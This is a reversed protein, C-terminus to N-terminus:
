RPSDLINFVRGHDVLYHGHYRLELVEMAQRVMLLHRHAHSRPLTTHLPRNEATLVGEARFTLAEKAIERPFVTLRNRSGEFLTHYRIIRKHGNLYVVVFHCRDEWTLTSALWGALDEDELKLNRNMVKEAALRTAILPQAHLYQVIPQTMGWVRLLEERRLRCIFNLSGYQDVLRESLCQAKEGNMVFSLLSQLTEQSNFQEHTSLTIEPASTM